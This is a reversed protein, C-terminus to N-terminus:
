RTPAEFVQGGTCPADVGTTTPLSLPLGMLSRVALYAFAEAELADGNWGVADAAVVPVQLRDALAAMMTANHRGGGCVIWQVPAQPLHDRAAAVAEVSFALLTAAGDEVSLGEISAVDFANRDLSKPPAGVFYSHNMLAALADRDVAGTAALKGGEDRKAGTHRRCWDDLLANAPGTDFALIADDDSGLWTVNGVGGLNLVGLPRPLGAARARHYLPALPAGEGGRRMDESRFDAVVRIGTSAALRAADGIQRTVGSEPAHHVTQGHFGIVAVEDPAIHAAALLAAVAEVHRDTLETEIAAFDPKREPHPGLLSRLRAAFDDDYALSRAKGTPTVQEGDTEVLAADIGDMSTGTMLGVALCTERKPNM